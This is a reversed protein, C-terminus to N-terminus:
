QNRFYRGVSIMPMGDRTDPSYEIFVLASIAGGRLVPLLLKNHGFEDFCGNANFDHGYEHIVYNLRGYIKEPILVSHHVWMMPKKYKHVIDSLGPHSLGLLPGVTSSSFKRMDLSTQKLSWDDEVGTLMNKHAIQGNFYAILDDPQFQRGMQDESEYAFGVPQEFMANNRSDSAQALIFGGAPSTDREWTYSYTGARVAFGRVDDMVQASLENHIVGHITTLLGETCQHLGYPAAMEHRYALPKRPLNDNGSFEEYEVCWGVSCRFLVGLQLVNQPSPQNVRWGVSFYIVQAPRLMEQATSLSPLIFGVALFLLLAIGQFPLLTLWQAPVNERGSNAFGYSSSRLM